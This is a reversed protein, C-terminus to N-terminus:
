QNNTSQGNITPIAYGHLLGRIPPPQISGGTVGPTMTSNGAGNTMSAGPLLQRPTGNPNTGLVRNINAGYMAGGDSNLGGNVEGGVQALAHGSLGLVLGVTLLGRLM